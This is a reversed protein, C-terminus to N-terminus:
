ITALAQSFLAPDVNGGSAVVVVAQGVASGSALVAALAAAGGPEVVIRLTEFAVAMARLAQEDTVTVGRVRRRRLAASTKVGANPAALADMITPSAPLTVLRGAALSRGTKDGGRPEVIVGEIDAYSESLAEIVGSALGGGSTSVFVANPRVGLRDLDEAIELGVTGQGSMVDHDDFPPILAMGRDRVIGAAVAERDETSPDFLVVDAGWWRCNDIKVRPASEPMVIVAPVGLQRAVAAVGQGHNGASFAVLGRGRDEAPMVLARNLAGRIKFSGTLQLCEPKVLVRLGAIDNLRPSELLPTRVIRGELRAAAARITSLDFNAVASM